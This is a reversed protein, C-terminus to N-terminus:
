RFQRLLFTHWKGGAGALLTPRRGTAQRRRRAEHMIAARDLEVRTVSQHQRRGIAVAKRVKQRGDDYSDDDDSCSCAIPGSLSLAVALLGFSICRLPTM